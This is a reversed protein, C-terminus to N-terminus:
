LKGLLRGSKVDEPLKQVGSMERFFSVNMETLSVILCPNNQCTTQHQTYREVFVFMSTFFGITERTVDGVCPPNRNNGKYCYRCMTSIMNQKKLCMMDENAPSCFCLLMYGIMQSSRTFSWCIGEMLGPLPCDGMQLHNSTVSKGMKQKPTM